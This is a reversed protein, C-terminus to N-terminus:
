DSNNTGDATKRRSTEVNTMLRNKDRIYYRGTQDHEYHNILNAKNLESVAKQTIRPGCGLFAAIEDVHFTGNVVPHEKISPDTGREDLLELFLKAVRCKVTRLRLIQARVRAKVAKSALNEAINLYIRSDYEAIKRVTTTKIMLLECPDTTVIYDKPTANSGVLQFDGLLEGPVRWALLAPPPKVDRSTKENPHQRRDQIKVYGSIIEFLASNESTAPEIKVPKGKDVKIVKADACVEELLALPLTWPAIGRFLTTRMILQFFKDQQLLEKLQSVSCSLRIPDSM